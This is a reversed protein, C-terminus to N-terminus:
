FITRDQPRKAITTSNANGQTQAFIQAFNQTKKAVKSRQMTELSKAM